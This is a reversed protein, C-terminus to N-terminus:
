LLVAGEVVVPNFPEKKIHGLGNCFICETVMFKPKLKRGLITAKFLEKETRYAEMVRKGTGKCKSCKKWYLSKFMDEKEKDFQSVRQAKEETVMVILPELEERAENIKKAKEESGGKDPHNLVMAKRYSIKLDEETFPYSPIKLIKMFRMTRNGITIRM